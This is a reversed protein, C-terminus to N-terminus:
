TAQRAVPTSLIERLRQRARSVHSMATGEAIELIESIQSYPLEEVVHLLLCCRSVDSLEELAALLRDDFAAQHPALRGGSVVPSAVDSDRSVEDVVSVAMERAKRRVEARRLNNWTLRLIAAMWALFSTGAAFSGFQRMAVIAAEQLLDDADASKGTIGAAIVWLRRFHQRYLGVFDQEPQM